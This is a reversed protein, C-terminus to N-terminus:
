DAVSLISFPSLVCHAFVRSHRGTVAAPGSPIVPLVDVLHQEALFKQRGVGHLADPAPQERHISRHLVLRHDALLDQLRNGAADGASQGFQHGIQEGADFQLGVRRGKGDLGVADMHGVAGIEHVAAERRFLGVAVVAQGHAIQWVGGLGSRHSRNRESSSSGSSM